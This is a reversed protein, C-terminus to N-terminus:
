HFGEWGSDTDPERPLISALEDEIDLRYKTAIEAVLVGFVGRLEGLATTFVWDQFGGGSHHPLPVRQVSDLFKRCASCLASLQADLADDSLDRRESTLFRRIEIVSAVCDSPM